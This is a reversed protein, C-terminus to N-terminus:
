DRFATDIEQGVFVSQVKAMPRFFTAQWEDPYVRVRLTSAGIAATADDGLAFFGIVYLALLGVVVAGAIFGVIPQSRSDKMGGM